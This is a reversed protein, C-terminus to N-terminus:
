ACSDMTSICTPLACASSNVSRMSTSIALYFLAYWRGGKATERLKTVQEPSYIQQEKPPAKPKRMKGIPNRDLMELEVAYSCAREPVAFAQQAARRGTGDESSEQVLIEFAQPFESGV